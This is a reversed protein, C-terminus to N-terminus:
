RSWGLERALILEQPTLATPVLREPHGAPTAPASRDPEHPGAPLHGTWFAGLSILGLWFTRGFWRM